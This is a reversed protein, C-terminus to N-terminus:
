RKGQKRAEELMRETATQEVRLLELDTEPYTHFWYAIDKPSFNGLHGPERHNAAVWTVRYRHKVRLPKVYWLSCMGSLAGDVSDRSIWYVWVTM